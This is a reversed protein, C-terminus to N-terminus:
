GDTGAVAAAADRTADLTVRLGEALEMRASWGLVERARTVDLCSRLVEGTRPPAHEVRFGQSAALEDLAAALEGEQPPSALLPGIISFRLRAWRM